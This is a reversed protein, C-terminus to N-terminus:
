NHRAFEGHAKERFARVAAEADGINKFYGLAYEQGEKRVRARWKGTQSFWNVGKVGSTNDKRVKANYNNESRTVARLNSPRNDTRVGNIHDVEEAWFGNHMAFVIQHALLPRGLVKIQVYGGPHPTGAVLGPKAPGRKVKWILQGTGHDLRLVEAIGDINPKM